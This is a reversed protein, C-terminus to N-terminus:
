THDLDAEDRKAAGLVEHVALYHHAVEVLGAHLDNGVGLLRVDDDDVGAREDVRGLLLRDAVDELDVLLAAQALAARSCFSITAPQMDWRKELSRGPEIGSTSAKMPRSWIVWTAGIMSSIKAFSRPEFAAGALKTVGREVKM